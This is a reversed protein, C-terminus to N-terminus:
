AAASTWRHNVARKTKTSLELWRLNFGLSEEVGLSFQHGLLTVGARWSPRSVGWSMQTESMWSPQIVWCLHAGFVAQHGIAFIYRGIDRHVQVDIGWGWFKLHVSFSIRHKPIYPPEYVIGHVSAAVIEGYHRLLTHHKM